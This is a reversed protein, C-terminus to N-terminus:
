DIIYVTVNRRGFNSAERDSDFWLDAVIQNKMAAGGTDVAIAYGYVFGNDAVIFLRSGYPIVKPNVAVCGPGAKVGTATSNGDMPSYATAKGKIAKTHAPIGDEGLPADPMTFKSYFSVSPDILVSEYASKVKNNRAGTAVIKSTQVANSQVPVSVASSESVAKSSSEAKKSSVSSSASSSASSVSLKAKVPAPTPKQKIIISAHQSLVSNLPPVILDNDTLTIYNQVLADSVTKGADISFTYEVGNNDMHVFIKSLPSVAGSVLSEPECSTNELVQMAYESIQSGYVVNNSGAYAPTVILKVTVISAFVLLTSAFVMKIFHTKIIQRLKQHVQQLKILNM